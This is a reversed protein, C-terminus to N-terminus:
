NILSKYHTIDSLKVDLNKSISVLLSFTINKAKGREIKCVWEHTIGIKLALEKQTLKKQLRFFKVKEGIKTLEINNEM